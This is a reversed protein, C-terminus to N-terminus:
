HGHYFSHGTFHLAVKFAVVLSGIVALLIKFGLPTPTENDLQQTVRSQEQQKRRGYRTLGWPKYVSLTTVVLLVLVAGSVDGLLETGVAHLEAGPLTGAAAGSVIKAAQAVATFQHMLLAYTAVLAILFKMLVWYHRFLGWPTGLAQVLGTALSALSMPVIVYLGILNMSLYAGAVVGTDRSTLGAISLVLFAAVAGLWGVSFVVHGTLAFKRLHPTMTMSQQEGYEITPTDEDLDDTEFRV